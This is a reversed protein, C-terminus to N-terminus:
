NRSRPRGIARIHSGLFFHFTLMETLSFLPTLLSISLHRKLYHSSEEGPYVKDFNELFRLITEDGFEASHLHM